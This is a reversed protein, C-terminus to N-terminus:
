VAAVMPLPARPDAAAEAAGGPTMVLAGAVGTVRGDVPVGQVAHGAARLGEAVRPATGEEAAVTAPGLHVRPAALAETLTGGLTVYRSYIQGLTQPQANGGTCGLVLVRGDKLMALLPSLTHFPRRGPALLRPNDAELAFAAGRNHLIIGTAASVVGSGGEAGLSQVTCALRGEADAAALFVTDGPAEAPLPWQLALNPVIDSAREALFRPALVLAPDLTMAAPDAVAPDRVLLTQKAAEILNHLHDFGGAERGLELRDLLGLMMLVALGQSPPPPAFATGSRLRVMLPERREARHAALDAADVPSGAAALDAILAAGVDGTHFDDLGARALRELTAALAAPAASAADGLLRALPLRGPMAALAAAWSAVAGPPTLVSWPGDGPVADAHGAARLADPTAGAAARGVSEIVLPAAAAPEKLLWVGDGGLGAHDPLVAACVAAAAVVAEAATGGEALVAAASEAAQRHPAVVIGHRGSGSLSM